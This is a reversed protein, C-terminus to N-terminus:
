FLYSTEDCFILVYEIFLCSDITICLMSKLWRACEIICNLHIVFIFLFINYYTTLVVFFIFLMVHHQQPFNRTTRIFTTTSAAMLKLLVFFVNCHKHFPWYHVTSSACIDFKPDITVIMQFIICIVYENDNCHPNIRKTDCLIYEDNLLVAAFYIDEKDVTMGSGFFTIGDFNHIGLLAFFVLFNWLYGLLIMNEISRFLEIVM